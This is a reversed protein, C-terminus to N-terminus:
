EDNGGFMNKNFLKISDGWMVVLGIIALVDIKGTYKSVIADIAIILVYGYSAYVLVYIVKEKWNM